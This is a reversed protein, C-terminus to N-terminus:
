RSPRKPNSAPAPPAPPAPRRRLIPRGGDADADGAQPAPSPARAAAGSDGAQPAPSPARAAAGPAPRRRLIPRGGDEDADGSPPADTKGSRLREELAEVQARDDGTRMRSRAQAAYERAAPAQQLSAALNAMTVYLNARLDPHIDRVQRLEALAEERRGAGALSRGLLFRAESLEPRERLAGRLATIQAERDGHTAELLRAYDWRTKWGTAGLRAASRFHRLAEDLDRRGWAAYALAEEIRVDGPHAAALQELPRVADAGRGTLAKVRALPLALELEPAQRAASMEVKAPALAYAAGGITSRRFYANMERDLEAVSRGYLEALAAESAAGASVRDLLAPFKERYGEGFMLMHVLLCSQAYFMNARRTHHLEASDLNGRLVTELRLWTSGALAQVRDRPIEGLLVRGDRREMTAYAEALGESLWPPLRMRSRHAQAHVYEHVAVRARQGEVESIVLFDRQEDGAFFAPTDDRSSYPRYEKPDDFLLVVVPLEATVMAPQAQRFFARAQELIDLTQRAEGEGTSAYLEFNPSDIRIWEAALAAHAAAAWLCLRAAKWAIPGPM